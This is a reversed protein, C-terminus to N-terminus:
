NLTRDVAAVIPRLEAVLEAFVDFDVQQQGDSLAEAPHPHVEILLGDAGLAIAGRCLVKVLDARGCGQSPDVIV